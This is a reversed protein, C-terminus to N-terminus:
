GARVVGEGAAAEGAVPARVAGAGLGGVRDERLELFLREFPLINLGLTHDLHVRHEVLSMEQNLGVASVGLKVVEESIRLLLLVQRALRGFTTTLFSQLPGQVSDQLAGITVSGPGFGPVQCSM